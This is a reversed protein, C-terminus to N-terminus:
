PSKPGQPPTGFTEEHYFRIRGRPSEGLSYNELPVHNVHWPLPFSGSGHCTRYTLPWSVWENSSSENCLLSGDVVM